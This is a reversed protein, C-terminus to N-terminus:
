KLEVGEPTLTLENSMSTNIAKSVEGLILGLIGITAPSVYGSLFGINSLLGGILASLAMMGTRWYLSKMRNGTVFTKMINVNVVPPAVPEEKEVILLSAWNDALKRGYCTKQAFKRHPVINEKPINYQVSKEKLLKTLTVVQADTPLTADFNGALCIGISSTNYGICHAGEENDARGQKLTGDKEIYYQYGVYFGLSSIFNFREKHLENCQEFTFNSSDALPDADTGGSHHIILWKPTNISM